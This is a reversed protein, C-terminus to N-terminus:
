EKFHSSEKMISKLKKMCTSKKNKAGQETALGMLDAIESMKKREFYFYKLIQQCGASLKGLFSAIIEKEETVELTKLQSEEVVVYQQVTDTLEVMRGSKRLKKLWLNRCISYLYTKITCRLEFDSKKAQNFLVILADQFVDEGDQQDGKNKIIVQQIMERYSAYMYRFARDNDSERTSKLLSMLEKDDIESM